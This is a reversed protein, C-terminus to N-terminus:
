ACFQPPHDINQHFDFHYLDTTTRNPRFRIDNLSPTSFSVENKQYFLPIFTESILITEDSAETTTAQQLQLKKALYCKGNCKLQPREKNVCYKEVIYDINLQYYLVTGIKISPQLVLIIFLISAFAKKM